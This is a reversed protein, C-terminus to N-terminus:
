LFRLIGCFAIFIVKFHWKNHVSNQKTDKVQYRKHMYGYLLYRPRLGSLPRYKEPLYGRWGQFLVTKVTWLSGRPDSRLTSVVFSIKKTPLQYNISFSIAWRPALYVLLGVIPAAWALAVLWTTPPSPRSGHSMLGIVEIGVYHFGLLFEPCWFRPSCEQSPVSQVSAPLTMHGQPHHFSQTHFGELHQGLHM